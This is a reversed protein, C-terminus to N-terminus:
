CLLRWNWGHQWFKCSKKKTASYYEMTHTHTHTHTSYLICVCIKILEGISPCKPQKQIKPLQLLAAIFMPTCIDKRILTKTKKLYIGLLLTAPDIITWNKIKQPIKMSTAKEIDKGVNTKQPRKSSLWESLHSTIDWQNQNANRQQNVINLIKEHATPWTNKPFIDRWAKQGSEYWTTQKKQHQIADFM